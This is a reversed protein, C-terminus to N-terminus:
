RNQYAIIQQQRLWQGIAKGTIGSPVAEGKVSNIAIIAAEYDALLSPLAGHDAQIIASMGDLGLPSKSLNLLFEVIKGPKRLTTVRMHEVIAFKACALWLRPLTMVKNFERLAVIGLEEHGYHHPLDKQDTLGKGIDHVLAAFRVESRKSLQATRDLVELSHVFADGEPHYLVPQTQGILANIQPFTVDLLDAAQLAYFFKSPKDSALAKTLERLIRERPENQLEVRCNRMMKVTSATISFGTEATQRAARLARVPDDGFHESTAMILRKDIADRGRYPDIIEGTQIHMAISNMTTDRRYLDEEITVNPSANVFFGRYGSGSKIESRAFAVESKKNDIELLYVPFSKGIKIAQPFLDAFDEETVGTIVYDKDKAIVNRLYDRVWGGVIYTKGGILAVSNCFDQENM